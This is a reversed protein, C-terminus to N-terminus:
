PELQRLLEDDDDWPAKPQDPPQGHVPDLKPEPNQKMEEQGVPDLVADTIVITDGRMMFSEDKADFWYHSLLKTRVLDCAAKLKPFNRLEGDDIGSQIYDALAYAHDGLAHPNFPTLREMRIAHYDNTVRILKGFYRPFHPNSPHEQALRIFDRYAQDKSSFVKLVYSQSPKQYVAGFTGAGLRHYGSSALIRDVAQRSQPRTIECLTMWYRLDGTMNM